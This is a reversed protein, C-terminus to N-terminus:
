QSQSQGVSGLINWTKASDKAVSCELGRDTCHGGTTIYKTFCVTGWQFDWISPPPAPFAYDPLIAVNRATQSSRIKKLDWLEQIGQLKLDSNEAWKVMWGWFKIMSAQVFSEPTAKGGHREVMPSRWGWKLAGSYPSRKESQSHFNKMSKHRSSLMVHLKHEM